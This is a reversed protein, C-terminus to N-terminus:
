LNGTSVWTGPTGAVTCVWSKPLGVVPVSNTCIEGVFHYHTTPVASASQWSNGDARPTTSGAGAIAIRTVAGCDTNGAILTGSDGGLYFGVAASSITNGRVVSGTIVDGGGEVHFFRAGTNGNLNNGEIINRNAAFGPTSKIYTVRSAVTTTFTNGSIINSDANAVIALIALMSDLMTPDAAPNSLTNGTFTNNSSSNIIVLSKCIGGGDFSNGICATQTSSVIELHAITSDAGVSFFTNGSVTTIDCSDVSIGGYCNAVAKFINNAIVTGTPRNSTNRMLPCVAFAMTSIEFYNNIIRAGDAHSTPLSNLSAVWAGFQTVACYTGAYFQCGDVLLNSSDSAYVSGEIRCHRVIASHSGTYVNIAHTTAGMVNCDSVTVFSQGNVSVCRGTFSGGNGDITLGTLSRYALLNILDGNANRKITTLTRGAGVWSATATLNGALYTGAPFSLVMGNATAAIDAATIAATDNTVGDGIAGYTKVNIGPTKLALEDGITTIDTEVITTRADLGYDTVSTVIDNITTLQMNLQNTLDTIEAGLDSRLSVDILELQAIQENVKDRLGRLQTQFTDNDRYTFPTVANIPGFVPLPTVLPIIVSPVTM